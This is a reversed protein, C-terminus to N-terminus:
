PLTPWLSRVIYVDRVNSADEETPPPDIEARETLEESESRPSVPRGPCGEM